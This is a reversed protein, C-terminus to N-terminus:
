ACVEIGLTSNSGAPLQLTHPRAAALAALLPLTQAAMPNSRALAAFADPLALAAGAQIPSNFELRLSAAGDLAASVVMAVGFNV